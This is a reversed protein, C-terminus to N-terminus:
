PLRDFLANAPDQVELSSGLAALCTEFVALCASGRRAVSEYLLGDVNRSFALAEGLEQTDTPPSGMPVTRFNLRIDALTMGFGKRVHPDRLDLVAHLKVIVPVIAITSEMAFAQTEHLCTDIEDGLYLVRAGSAVNFRQRVIPRGKGLPDRDHKVLM